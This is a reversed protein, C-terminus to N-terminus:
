PMVRALDRNSALIVRRAYLCAASHELMRRSGPVNSARARQLAPSLMHIEERGAWGVVYRRAAPATTAWQLPLLPAAFSLGGVSDHLVVTLDAPAEPFLGALRHRAIELSDLVREADDASASDHRARFTASATEVWAM